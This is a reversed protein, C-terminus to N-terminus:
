SAYIFDKNFKFDYEVYNVLILFFVIYKFSSLCFFGLDQLVCCLKGAFVGRLLETWKETSDELQDVDDLRQRLQELAAANEVQKVERWPDDFGYEVLCHQCLDLLTRISFPMLRFFCLVCILSWGMYNGCIM